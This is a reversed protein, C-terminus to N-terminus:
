YFSVPFYKWTLETLIGRADLRKLSANLAIRLSTDDPRLAIRAGEGLFASEYFPGGRFTCCAGEVDALWIALSPGDAFLADITAALLAQQAENL